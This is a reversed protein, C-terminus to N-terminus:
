LLADGDLIGSVGRQAKECAQFIKLNMGREKIVEAPHIRGFSLALFTPFRTRVDRLIEQMTKPTPPPAFIDGTEVDLIATNEDDSLTTNENM